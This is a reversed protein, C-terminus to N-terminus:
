RASRRGFAKWENRRGAYGVLLLGSAILLLTVPESNILPADVVASAMALRAPPADKGVPAMILRVEEGVELKGAAEVFFPNWEDYADLDCLVAWVERPSAEIRVEHTM